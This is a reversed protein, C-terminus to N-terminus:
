WLDPVVEVAGLGPTTKHQMAGVMRGRGRARRPQQSLAWIGCGGCGLMLRLSVKQM